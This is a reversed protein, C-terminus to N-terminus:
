AAGPPWDDDVAQKRSRRAPFPLVKADDKPPASPPDPQRPPREGSPPPRGRRDDGTM